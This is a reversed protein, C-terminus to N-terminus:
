ATKARFAILLIDIDIDLSAPMGSIKVGGHTHPVWDDPTPPAVVDSHIVARTAM